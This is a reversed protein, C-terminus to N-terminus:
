GSFPILIHLIVNSATCLTYFQLSVLIANQHDMLFLIRESVIRHNLAWENPIVNASDIPKHTGPRLENSSQMNQQQKQQHKVQQHCRAIIDNVMFISFASSHRCLARQVNWQEDNLARLCKGFTGMHKQHTCRAHTHTNVAPCSANVWCKGNRNPERYTNTIAHSNTAITFTTTYLM